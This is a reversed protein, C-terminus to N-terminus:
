LLENIVLKERLVNLLEDLTSFVSLEEANLIPFITGNKQIVIAPLILDKILIDNLQNKHLFDVDIKLQSIFETWERKPGILNYTLKCLNCSYTGPSLLKHGTDLMANLKGSNANYIFFLKQKM